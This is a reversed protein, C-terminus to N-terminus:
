WCQSMSHLSIFSTGLIRICLYDVSFVLESNSLKRVLPYEWHQFSTTKPELSYFFSNNFTFCQSPYQPVRLSSKCSRGPNLVDRECTLHDIPWTTVLKFLRTEEPYEQQRWSPSWVFTFISTLSISKYSYNFRTNYLNVFLYQSYFWWLIDGRDQM